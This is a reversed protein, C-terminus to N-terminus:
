THRAPSGFGRALLRLGLGCGFGFARARVRVKVRNILKSQFEQIANRIRPRVFLANCQAFIRFMENANRAAGLQDRLRATIENEVRDIRRNYEQEAAEFIQLRSRVLDAM